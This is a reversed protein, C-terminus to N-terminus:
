RRCEDELGGTGGFLPDGVNVAEETLVTPGLAFSAESLLGPTSDRNDFLFIARSFTSLLCTPCFWFVIFRGLTGLVCCKLGFPASHSIEGMQSSNMSFMKSTHRAEKKEICRGIDIVEGNGACTVESSNSL